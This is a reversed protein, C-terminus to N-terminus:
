IEREELISLGNMGSLLPYIKTKSFYELGKTVSQVECEDEKYCILLSILM